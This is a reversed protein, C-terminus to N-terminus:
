PISVDEPPVIVAGSARRLLKRKIADRANDLAALCYAEDDNPYKVELAGSRHHRIVVEAVIPDTDDSM